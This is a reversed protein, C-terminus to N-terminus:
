CNVPREMDPITDREEFGGYACVEDSDASGMRMSGDFSSRESSGGTLLPFVNPGRRRVCPVWGSHQWTLSCCRCAAAEYWSTTRWSFWVYRTKAAKPM